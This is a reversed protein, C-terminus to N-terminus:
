GNAHLRAAGSSPAAEAADHDLGVECRPPHPHRNYIALGRARGGDNTPHWLHWVDCQTYLNKVRARPRLRMARDGLDTDEMGYETFREDYGNLAVFLDRDMAFNLGLVKPRRRQRLLTGWHSKRRLRRLARHHEPEDLREFDGRDV